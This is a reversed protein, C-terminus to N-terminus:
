RHFLVLCNGNRKSSEVSFWVKAERAEYVRGVRSRARTQTVFWLVSELPNALFIVGKCTASLSRGHGGFRQGEPM